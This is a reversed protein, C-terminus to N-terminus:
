ISHGGESDRNKRLHAAAVAWSSAPSHATCSTIPLTSAWKLDWMAQAGGGQFGGSHKTEM